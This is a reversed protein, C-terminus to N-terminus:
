VINRIYNYVFSLPSYESHYMNLYIICIKVIVIWIIYIRYLYDWPESAHGSVHGSLSNLCRESPRWLILALFQIKKMIWGISRKNWWSSRRFFAECIPLRLNLCPIFVSSVFLRMLVWWTPNWSLRLFNTFNSFYSGMCTEEQLM